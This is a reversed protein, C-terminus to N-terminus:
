GARRWRPNFRPELGVGLFTFALVALTVAFGAPLVWWTWLPTFYLGQQGLARNLIQGWSVGTPDGLGLFALGAELLVAIGAVNVFGVVVIPGLAPVLHRRVVYLPGAGFGSAASVFGRQRLTLTQSRVMRAHAPWFLVAMVVIVGAQSSGVLAALLILLPLAPVALFVDVARMVVADVVGGLLGAGVGIVVGAVITLVAAGVGVVLSSRAGWILRSFIDQGIDDTGLLHQASPPQLSPGTVARPDYPALLPALVAVAVLTALIGVGLAVLPSWRPSM